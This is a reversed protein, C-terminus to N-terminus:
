LSTGFLAKEIEEKGRLRESMDGFTLLLKRMVEATNRPPPVRRRSLGTRASARVAPRRPRSPAYKTAVM